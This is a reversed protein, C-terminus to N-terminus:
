DEPFIFNDANWHNMRQMNLAWERLGCQTQDIAIETSM